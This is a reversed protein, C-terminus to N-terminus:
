VTTALNHFGVPRNPLYAPVGLLEDVTVFYYGRAHLAGITLRVADVTAARAAGGANYGDHFILIAGPRTKSIAKRAIRAPNIQLVELAHCFRGSVPLLRERRLSSLLMPQRWLWLTRVLVPEKNLAQRLIRQTREIERAFAGPRLYTRFRHSLSHNGIVHGEAALVAPVEPFREVCRGVLFFTARVNRQKLIEAIQSTYPENPRGDFTLAVARTDDRGRWPYPGFVQSYPSMFVWYLGLVLAAAVCAEGSWLWRWWRSGYWV